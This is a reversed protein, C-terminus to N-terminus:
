EVEDNVMELKKLVDRIDERTFGRQYLYASLRYQINTKGQLSKLKREALRFLEEANTDIEAEDIAQQIIEGPIGKVILERKVLNIGRKGQQLRGEIYKISFHLDDLYRYELLRKATGDIIEPSFGKRTLYQRMERTSRNRFSLYHLSKQWCQYRQSELVIETLLEGSFEKGTELGYKGLAEPPLVIEEGTDFEVKIRDNKYHIKIICTMKMSGNAPIALLPNNIWV